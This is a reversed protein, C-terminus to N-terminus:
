ACNLTEVTAPFYSRMFGELDERHADSASNAEELLVSLTFYAGATTRCPATAIVGTNGVAASGQPVDTREPNELHSVSSPSGAVKLPDIRDTHWAFRLQM